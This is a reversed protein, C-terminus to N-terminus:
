QLYLNYLHINYFYIIYIYIKQIRPRTFNYLSPYNILDASRLSIIPSDVATILWLEM